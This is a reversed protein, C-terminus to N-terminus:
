FLKTIRSAQSKQPTVPFLMIVCYHRKPLPTLLNGCLVPLLM